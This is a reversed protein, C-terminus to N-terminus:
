SSGTAHGRGKELEVLDGNELAQLLGGVSREVIFYVNEFGDIGGYYPDPVEAGPGGQPDFERLLHIRARQAPTAALRRLYAANEGDMAIVWDFREFDAQRFQRARGNYSLGHGAAVRRMREDPPQGVHWNGVAASDAEYRESVGAKSALQIFLHQALPSRVINGLCVFCIRQKAKLLYFEEL